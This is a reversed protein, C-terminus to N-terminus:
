GAYRLADSPPIRSALWGPIIAAMFASALIIATYLAITAWPILFDMTGSSNVDVIVYAVLAGNVLGVVLGILGMLILEFLVAGTVDLKRFGLSRMMGIERKREQVSRMSVVLLGLVGVLFGGSTFIQIFTFFRYMSDFQYEYIDWVPIGAIGFTGYNIRFDSDKGNAWEEIASALKVNEDSKLKNDPAEVLFLSQSNIGDEFALLDTAQTVSLFVVSSFTPPGPAALAAPWETLANGYSIAAGVFERRTQGDKELLWISGGAEVAAEGTFSTVLPPLIAVPKNDLEQNDAVYRWAAENEQRTETKTDDVSAATELPDAKRSSLSFQFAWGDYDFQGDRWFSKEDIPIISVFQADEYTADEELFLPTPNASVTYGRVLDVGHSNGFETAVQDSFNLSTPIDQDAVVVVDTGGSILEVTEDAGYRYSYSWIALMINMTLVVSFIAFVLTSRIKKSAMQEMAVLAIARFNAIVGVTKSITLAVYELNVGIFICSGAILSMIIGIIWLMGGSGETIWDIVVFSNFIPWAVLAFAMVNLSWRRSLFYSATLAIGVVPLLVIFYLVEADDVNGWASIGSWPELGSSIGWLFGVIILFLGFYLGKRGIKKEEPPSIGRMVEVVNIRSARWAPLISTLLALFFGIIFSAIVTIESVVPGPFSLGLF